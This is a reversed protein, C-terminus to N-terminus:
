DSNDETEERRPECNVDTEEIQPQNQDVEYNQETEERSFVKGNSNLSSAFHNNSHFNLRTFFLWSDEEVLLKSIITSVYSIGVQHQHHFRLMNPM